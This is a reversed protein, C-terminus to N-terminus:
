AARRAVAAWAAFRTAAPAARDVQSRPTGPTSRVPPREADEALWGLWAADFDRYRYGRSRCRSVFREVSAALDTGPFRDLARGLAADSPQWEAAPMSVGARAGPADPIPQIPTRNTDAPACAGDAAASVPFPDAAASVTSPDAVASLPSGETAVAAAPLRYRCSTEGGRALRRREKVVLGREVLDAVVRNVWPRSRGLKAALTTQSPHAEGTTFDAHRKLAVLVALQDASITPDDIWEVPILIHRLREGM